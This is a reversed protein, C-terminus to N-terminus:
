RARPPDALVDLRNCGNASTSAPPRVPTRPRRYVDTRYLKCVAASVHSSSPSQIGTMSQLSRVAKQCLCSTPKLSQVHSLGRKVFAVIRDTKSCHLNWGRRSRLGPPSCCQSLVFCFDPWVGWPNYRLSINSSSSNKTEHSVRVLAAHLASVHSHRVTQAFLFFLVGIGVSSCDARPQVADGAPPQLLVFCQVNVLGSICLRSHVFDM